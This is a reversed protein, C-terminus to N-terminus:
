HRPEGEAAEEEDADEKKQYEKRFGTGAPILRGIIVNEKLGILRDEVGNLASRVLVKVTNQFSAASLFSPTTLSVESIRMILNAAK